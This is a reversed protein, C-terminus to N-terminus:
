FSERIAIYIGYQDAPGKGIDLRVNLKESKLPQFRGGIGVVYKMTSFSFDGLSKTVNGMGAFLVGGLRWFLHRRGEVQLYYAHKDRFRNEHEIGRLRSDGGLQPLMYFPIDSGTTHAYFLQVGLINKDTFVTQFKRFDLKLENFSYDNSFGDVYFLSKVELFIGKKPYFINDRSDYKLIPGIGLISGGKAGLVTGTNLEGNPDLDDIRNFQYQYAIGTFIREKFTWLLDGNWKFFKNNYSERNGDTENGIGYYFDPYNFYRITSNINWHDVIYYEIDIASMFQNRFTYLFYPSISSPRHFTQKINDSPKIVVFGVIGLSLSTEPSYGAAPYATIKIKKENKTSDQNIEAKLEFNTSSM